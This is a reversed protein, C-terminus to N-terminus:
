VFLSVCFSSNNVATSECSFLQWVLRISRSRMYSEVIALIIRFRKFIRVGVSNRQALQARHTLKHINRSSHLLAFRAAYKVISIFTNTANAIRKPETAINSNQTSVSFKSASAYSIIFPVSASALLFNPLESSEAIHFHFHRREFNFLSFLSIEGSSERRFASSSSPYSVPPPTLIRISVQWRTMFEQFNKWKLTMAEDGDKTNNATLQTISKKASLFLTSINWLLLTFM